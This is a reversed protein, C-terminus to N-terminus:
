PQAAIRISYGIGCGSVSPAYNVIRVYFTGIHYPHFTLRSASSGPAADDNWDLLRVGDSDYLYIVTDAGSLDLTEVVYVTNTNTVQFTIWDADNAQHFTHRQPTGDTSIVHAQVSADDPEYADPCPPTYNQAILPLYVMSRVPVIMADSILSVSNSATVVVTYNGPAAYTHTVVLGTATQGDGLDWQYIANSGTPLTATMTTTHGLSTPGDHSLVLGSTVRVDDICWEDSFDGEYRFALYISQNAYDRLAIRVQQWTDELGPGLEQLELFNGDKPDNSGQSVWLSHKSYHLPYSEYQWFVLESVLTPTVRPTVLWGDQQGFLDDYFACYQGGHSRAGDRWWWEDEVRGTRLWGPPPFSGEFGEILM